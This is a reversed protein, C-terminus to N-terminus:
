KTLRFRHGRQREIDDPSQILELAEVVAKVTNMPHHSGLVKAKLDKIGVLRCMATITNNAQIGSGSPAAMLKVRTKCYSHEINHYVTHGEFLKVAHLNKQANHYAKDVAKAVESSKGKGYGIVGNGNGTVVFAAFSPVVGGKTVKCTRNVDVVHM